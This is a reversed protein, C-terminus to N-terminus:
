HGATSKKPAPGTASKAAIPVASALKSDLLAKVIIVDAKEEQVAREPHAALYKLFAKVVDMLAAGEALRIRVRKGGISYTASFRPDLATSSVDLVAGVYYLCGTSMMMEDSESKPQYPKGEDADAVRVAAECLIGMDQAAYLGEREKAGAPICILIAVAVVTVAIVNKM